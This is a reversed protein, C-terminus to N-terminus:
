HSETRKLETPPGIFARVQSRIRNLELAHAPKGGMCIVALACDECCSNQTVFSLPRSVFSQERNLGHLVIPAAIVTAFAM